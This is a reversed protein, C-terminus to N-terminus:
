LFSATSWGSPMQLQSLKRGEISLTRKRMGMEGHHSVPTSYYADLFANPLFDAVGRDVFAASIGFIVNQVPPITNFPHIALQLHVAGVTKSPYEYNPDALIRECCKVLDGVLSDVV